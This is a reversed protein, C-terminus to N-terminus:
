TREARMFVERPRYDDVRLSYRATGDQELVTREFGFRSYFDRVMANKATPIYEGTVLPRGRERAHAFIANMAFEEVGRQLVRCSMLFTDIHLSSELEELIVISILGHDSLKDKLALFFPVRAEDSMFSECQGQSYRRTTLNFQNSRQLLQAIRPLHFADFRGHTVVM